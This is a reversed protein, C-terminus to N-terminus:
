KRFWISSGRVAGFNKKIDKPVFPYKELLEENHLNSITNNVAVVSYKNSLLEVYYHENWKSMVPHAHWDYPYDDPRFYDHFQILVGSQLEPIIRFFVHEVDSNKEVIHSSDVFLIDDRKLEKFLSTPIDQVPRLTYSIGAFKQRPEPDIATVKAGSRQALFTSYGCGIEIVQKAKKLFHWYTLADLPPFQGNDWLFVEPFDSVDLNLM